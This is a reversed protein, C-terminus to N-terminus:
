MEFEIRVKRISGDNLIYNMRNETLLCPVTWTELDYDVFQIQHQAERRVADKLIAEMPLITENSM